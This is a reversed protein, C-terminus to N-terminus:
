TQHTTITNFLNFSVFLHRRDTKKLISNFAQELKQCFKAQKSLLKNASSPQTCNRSGLLATQMTPWCEASNVVRTRGYALMHASVAPRCQVSSSGSSKKYGKTAFMAVQPGRPQLFLGYLTALGLKLKWRVMTVMTCRIAHTTCRQRYFTPTNRSRAVYIGLTLLSWIPKQGAPQWLSCFSQILQTWIWGRFPLCRASLCFDLRHGYSYKKNNSASCSHNLHSNVNQTLRLGRSIHTQRDM